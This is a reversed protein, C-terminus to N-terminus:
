MGDKELTEKHSLVTHMALIEFDLILVYTM